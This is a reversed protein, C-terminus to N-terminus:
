ASSVKFTVAPVMLIDPPSIVSVALSSPNFAAPQVSELPLVPPLSPLNPRPFGEEELPVMVMEPPVSFILAEPSPISALPEKSIVPPLIVM